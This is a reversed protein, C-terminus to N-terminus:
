WHIKDYVKDIIYGGERVKETSKEEESEIYFSRCRLWIIARRFM